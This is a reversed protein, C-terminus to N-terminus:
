SPPLDLIPLEDDYRDQNKRDRTADILAQLRTNSCDRGALPGARAAPREAARRVWNRWAADWDRKVANAGNAARWHDRFKDLEAHAAKGSGLLEVALAREADNPRWGEPLRCGRKGPATPPGAFSTLPPTPTPSLTQKEKSPPTPPSKEKEPSPPSPDASTGTVKVHSDRSTGHSDRSRAKRGRDSARRAEIAKAGEARTEEIEKAVAASIAEFAEVVLAIVKRSAGAASIAAVIEGLSPKTSTL